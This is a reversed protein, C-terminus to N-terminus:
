KLRDLEKSILENLREDDVTNFFLNSYHLDKLINMMPLFYFMGFDSSNTHFSKSLTKGIMRTSQGRIFISGILPFPINYQSYKVPLGRTVEFLKSLLIDNAYRLLHWNRNKFIKNVYLDVESLRDLINAMDMSSIKKENAVISSFIAYVIDKIREEPTYGFKPSIYIIDSQYLIIKAESNNEASFFLNICDEVSLNKHLTKSSDYEGQLKSQVLNLLTRIDGKSKEILKLKQDLDLSRNEMKLLRQLLLYCSFPSLHLFEIMKSNKILEKIKTNKSNAAMVIPINSNKLTSILFALGGYDDRGSIGDVEDLFLLIKKGFISTNSLLPQIISELNVKNRFDSANLEVLDYNLFNAMSIAFSTKGTGPPGILLLPKTGKMWNKIWKLADLRPKENGVFNDVSNNRYKESWM